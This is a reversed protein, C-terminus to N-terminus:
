PSSIALARPFLVQNEKYIQEHISRELRVIADGLTRLPAPLSPLRPGDSALTHLEALAEDAENHQSEMQATPTKLSFHAGAREEARSELQRILPFLVEAEARLHATLKERFAVFVERIKRVRPNNAGHREAAARTLTDLRTLEDRLYVRHERELHDCLETLTMLELTVTPVGPRAAAFAALMRVVTQAELGQAQCVAALPRNRDRRPHIGLHQFIRRHQPAARLVQDLPAQLDLSNM